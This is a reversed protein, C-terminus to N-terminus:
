AKARFEDQVWRKLLLKDYYLPEDYGPLRLQNQYDLDTLKREGEKVVKGDTGVVQFKLHIRPMTTASMVRIHDPSNFRTEGALDVDLLTVTLKQGAPLRPSATQQIYARLEGLFYESVFESQNERVDTFRDPEQIVVTVNEPIKAPAAAVPSASGAALALGALLPILHRTKM